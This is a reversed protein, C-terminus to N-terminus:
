SGALYRQRAARQDLNIDFATAVAAIAASFGARYTQVEEYPVQRAVMDNTILIAQLISRVDEKLFVDSGKVDQLM